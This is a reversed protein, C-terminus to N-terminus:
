LRVEFTEYEGALSWLFLGRKRLIKAADLLRDFRYVHRGIYYNSQNENIKIHEFNKMRRWISINNESRSLM